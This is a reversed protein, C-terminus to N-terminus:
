DDDELSGMDVITRCFSNLIQISYDPPSVCMLYDSLCKIFQPYLSTTQKKFVREYFVHLSM